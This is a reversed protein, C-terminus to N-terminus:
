IDLFLGKMKAKSQFALKELAGILSAVLHLPDSNCVFTPGKVLNTSTSVSIPVRKRLWTTTKTDRFTEEQVCVVEFDFMALNQFLKQTSSVLLTWSTLSLKKSKIYTGPYVKKVRESCTTLNQQLNFTRNSFTDSNRCHFIPYSCYHQELLM